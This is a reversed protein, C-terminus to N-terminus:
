VLFAVACQAAGERMVVELAVDLTAEVAHGIGLGFGHDQVLHALCAGLFQQAGLPRRHEAPEGDTVGFQQCAGYAVM